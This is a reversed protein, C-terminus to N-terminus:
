LSLKNLLCYDKQRESKEANTVSPRLWEKTNMISASIAVTLGINFLILRLYEIHRTRAQSVAGEFVRVDSDWM